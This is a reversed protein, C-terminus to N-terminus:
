KRMGWLGGILLVLVSLLLFTGLKYVQNYYLVGSVFMELFLGGCVLIWGILKQTKKKM